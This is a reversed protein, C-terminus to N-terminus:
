EVYTVGPFVVFYLRACDQTLTPFKPKASGSLTLMLKAAGFRDTIAHRSAYYIPHGVTAQITFVLRLGDPSLQPDQLLSGVGLESMSYTGVIPWMGAREAHERFETGTGNRIIIRREPVRRSPTSLQEAASIMLAPTPGRPWVRPGTRAHIRVSYQDTASRVVVLLEDGEPAVRPSFVYDGSDKALVFTDFLDTDVPGEVMGLNTRDAVAFTRAEDFSYYNPFAGTTISIPLKTFQPPEDDTPCNRVQADVEPAPRLELGFVTDCGAAACLLWLAGSNPFM